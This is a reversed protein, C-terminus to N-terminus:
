PFHQSVHAEVYTNRSVKNLSSAKNSKRHRFECIKVLSCNSKGHSEEPGSTQLCLATETIRSSGSCSYIVWLTNSNPWIHLSQRLTIKILWLHFCAPRGAKICFNLRRTMRRRRKAALNSMNVEPGATSPSLSWIGHPESTDEPWTPVALLLAGLM